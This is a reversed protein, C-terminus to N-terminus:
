PHRPRRASWCRTTAIFSSEQLPPAATPPRRLCPSTALSQAAALQHPLRCQPGLLRRKASLSPRIAPSPSRARARAPAPIPRWPTASPEAEVAAAALPSQLGALAAPLLGVAAPARPSTSAAVAVPPPSLAAPPPFRM